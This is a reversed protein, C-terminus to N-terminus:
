LGPVWPPFYVLVIMVVLTISLMLLAAGMAALPDVRKESRSLSVIGLPEPIIPIKHEGEYEWDPLLAESRLAPCLKSLERRLHAIDSEHLRFRPWLELEKGDREQLYRELNRAFTAFSLYQEAAEDDIRKWEVIDLPVVEGRAQAIKRLEQVVYAFLNNSGDKLADIHTLRAGDFCLCGVPGHEDRMDIEFAQGPREASEVLVNLAVTVRRTKQPILSMKALERRSDRGEGWKLHVRVLKLAGIVGPASLAGVYAYFVLFFAITLTEVNTRQALTV